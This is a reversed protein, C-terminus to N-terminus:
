RKKLNELRVTYIIEMQGSDYSISDNVFITDGAGNLYARSANISGMPTIEMSEFDLLHLGFSSNGPLKEVILLENSSIKRAHVVNYDLALQTELTQLDFVHLRNETSNDDNVLYMGLDKALIQPRFGVDVFRLGSIGNSLLIRNNAEKDIFQSALITDDMVNFTALDMMFNHTTKLSGDRANYTLVETQNNSFGTIIQIEDNSIWSVHEPDIGEESGIRVAKRDDLGLIFSSAKPGEKELLVVSTGAPNISASSIESMTRYLDTKEMSMFDYYRLIRNESESDRQFYLMGVDPVFDLITGQDLYASILGKTSEVVEGTNANVKLRLNILPIELNAKDYIKEYDIVWVPSAEGKVLKITPYGDHSIKYDSRIKKLVDVIGYSISLPSYNENVIKFKLSEAETQSVNSLLITIQPIVLDASSYSSNVLHINFVDDVKEIKTVEMGTSQLLGPSVLLKTQNNKRILEIRPETNQFGQSLVVQEVNFQPDPARKSSASTERLMPFSCGTLVMTAIIILLIMSNRKM